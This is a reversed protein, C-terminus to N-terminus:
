GQLTLMVASTLAEQTGVHGACNLHQVYILENLNARLSYLAATPKTGTLDTWSDLNQAGARSLQGRPKSNIELVTRAEM